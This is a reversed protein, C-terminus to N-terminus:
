RLPVNNLVVLTTLNLNSEKTQQLQDAM